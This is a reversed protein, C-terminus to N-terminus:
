DLAEEPVSFARRVRLFPALPREPADWKLAYYDRVGASAQALWACPWGHGGCLAVGGDTNRRLGAEACMEGAQGHYRLGFANPKWHVCDPGNEEPSHDPCFDGWRWVTRSGAACAHEWEDSTPLRLGEAAVQEVLDRFLLGAVFDNCARPEAEILFPGLQAVRPGPLRALWGFFDEWSNYEFRFEEKEEDYEEEEEDEDPPEPYDCTDLWERRKQLDPGLRRAPDHGLQVAGGPVLAFRAGQPARFFAVQRSQNGCSHAEVADFAWPGPLCAALARGVAEAERAAFQDWVSLTL